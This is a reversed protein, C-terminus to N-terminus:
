TEQRYTRMKSRSTLVAFLFACALLAIGLWICSGPAGLALFAGMITPRIISSFNSIYIFMSNFNEPPLGNAMCQRPWLMNINPTLFKDAIATLVIVITAWIISNNAKFSLYILGGLGLFLVSNSWYNRNRVLRNLPKNLMFASFNALVVLNSIFDKPMGYDQSFLPFFFSKYGAVTDSPIIMIFILILIAPSFLFKAYESIKLKKAKVDNKPRIYYTEKPLIKLSILLVGALPLLAFLYIAFNGFYEAVFGALMVSIVSASIGAMSKENNMEFRMKENGSLFPMILSPGAMVGFCVNALFIGFCYGWFSGNLVLFATIVYIVSNLGASVIVVKKVHIRPLCVDSIMQGVLMGISMLTAPLGVLLAIDTIGNQYLLDKSILLMLVSDFKLVFEICLRLSRFHAIEPHPHQKEILNCRKKKADIIGKLEIFFLVVGVIFTLLMIFVTTTTRFQNVMMIGINSCTEIYGVTEGNDDKLAAIASMTDGYDAIYTTSYVDGSELRKLVESDTVWPVSMDAINLTSCIPVIRGNDMLEYLTIFINSNNESNHNVIESFFLGIDKAKEHIDSVTMYEGATLAILINEPDKALALTLSSIETGRALSNNQHMKDSYFASTAFILVVTAAAFGIKLITQSKGENALKKIYRVTEYILLVALYALAIWFLMKGAFFLFTCPASKPINNKVQKQFMLQGADDVKITGPLHDYLEQTIQYIKEAEPTHEFVQGISSVGIFKRAALNYDMGLLGNLEAPLSIEDLVQDEGSDLFKHIAVKQANLDYFIAILGDKCPKINRILGGYVKQEKNEKSYDASYLTKRIRGKTDFVTIHENKTYISDSAIEYDHVYYIDDKSVAQRYFCRLSLGKGDIVKRIRGEKDLFTLRGYGRDIIVSSDKGDTRMASNNQEFEQVWPIPFIVSQGLNLLVVMLAIVTLALLVISKKNSIKEILKKM